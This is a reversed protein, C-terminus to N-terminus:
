GGGGKQSVEDNAVEDEGEIFTVEDWHVESNHNKLHCEYLLM